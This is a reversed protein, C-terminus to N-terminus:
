EVEQPERTAKFENVEPEESWPTSVTTEGNLQDGAIECVVSSEIEFQGFTLTGSWALETGNMRGELPATVESGDMPSTMIMRGSLVGDEDMELEITAKQPGGESEFEVTWTGTPDVGEAPGEGNAGNEDDGDPPLPEEDLDYPYGDVFVWGPKAKKRVLPDGTWLVFTADYGTALRGLRGDAGALAAGGTTLAARADQIAFGAEVLSRVSKLLASPKSSATGFAIRVGAEQLRLTSDRRQEWLRRKEARVGYPETYETQPEAEEEDGEDKEAKKKKGKDEDPDDVEKGWDLTLIVPIDREALQAGVKWLDRGGVFALKLGFSDALKLWREADRATEVECLLTREGRVLAVGAELDPDYPPRTGPRGSEWRTRLEDYWQVDLFFQRLQAMYGMLTSPYGDGTARFAACTYLESALVLDRMAGDRTTALVTSGSLLQGSPSVHTAGFGSERLQVLQEDQLALAEVARFTPQIGKRNALRMDVRVDSSVDVPKDRDKQPVPTEVGRTTWADVFAPLALYGTGDVVRHGPPAEAAGPVVGAIRGDRLLLSVTAPEEDATAAPLTVNRVLTPQPRAPAQAAATSSLTALILGAAVARPSSSFPSM